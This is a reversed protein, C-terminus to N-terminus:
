ALIDIQSMKTRKQCLQKCSYIARKSSSYCCGMFRLINHKMNMDFYKQNKPYKRRLGM